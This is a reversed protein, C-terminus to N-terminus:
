SSDDVCFRVASCYTFVSGTVYSDHLKGGVMWGFFTNTLEDGFLYGRFNAEAAVRTLCIHHGGSLLVTQRGDREEVPVDIYCEEEHVVYVRGPEALVHSDDEYKLLGISMHVRTTGHSIATTVKKGAELARKVVMLDTTEM